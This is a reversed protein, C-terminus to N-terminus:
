PLRVLHTGLPSMIVFIALSALIYFSFGAIFLVRTKTRNRAVEWLRWFGWAITLCIAPVAPYFYYDYM